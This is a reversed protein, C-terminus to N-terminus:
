SRAFSSRRTKSYANGRLAGYVFTLCRAWPRFVKLYGIKFPIRKRELRGILIADPQGDRYISIVHPRLAEPYSEIITLVFDIDSDRHGGWRIWVERLAEVESPSRAIRIEIGDTSSRQSPRLPATQNDVETSQM